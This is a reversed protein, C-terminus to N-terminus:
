FGHYVLMLYVLLLWHDLLPHLKELIDVIRKAQFSASFSAAGETECAVVKINKDRWIGQDLGKLIGLLLGGGGVSLMIEFPIQGQLIPDDILEDIISAHGQWIDPHDFPSIYESEPDQQAIKRALQDAEKWESGHVIVKVLSERNEFTKGQEILLNITRQPTSNSVVITAKINLKQAAYAVALGANGGSSNVFHRIKNHALKQCHYGIGRVKFSGALQVAELKLFVPRKAISSLALSPILPTRIHM